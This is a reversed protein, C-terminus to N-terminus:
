HTIAYIKKLKSNIKRKFEKTKLISRDKYGFALVLYETSGFEEQIQDWIKKSPIDDPFMKVFDDDIKVSFFGIALILTAIISIFITIYPSKVSFNLYQNKINNM